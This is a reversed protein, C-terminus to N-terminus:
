TRLGSAGRLTFEEREGPSPQPSARAAALAALVLEVPSLDVKDERKRMDITVRNGNDNVAENVEDALM